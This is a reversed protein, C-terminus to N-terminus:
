REDAPREDAYAKRLLIGLESIMDRTALGRRAQLSRQGLTEADSIRADREETFDKKWRALSAARIQVPEVELRRAAHIEADTPPLFVRHVSASWPDLDSMALIPQILARQRDREAGARELTETEQTDGPYDFDAPNHPFGAWSGSLLARIARTSMASGDGLEIMEDVDPILDAVSVELAAAM